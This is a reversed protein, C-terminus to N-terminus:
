ADRPRVKQSNTGPLGALTELPQDGRKEPKCLLSKQLTVNQDKGTLTTPLVARDYLQYLM